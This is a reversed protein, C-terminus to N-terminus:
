RAGRRMSRLRAVQARAEADGPALRVVAEFEALADDLRGADLLALGLNYRAPADDPSRAVAQALYPLGEALRGAECLAAGLNSLAAVYEPWIRVAERLYAIGEAADGRSVLANGLNNLAEPADPRLALARRYRAIAGAAEGRRELNMGIVTEAVWNPGTVEAAHEFLRLESRWFDVQRLTLACLVALLAAAGLGSAVEAGSRRPASPLAWCAVLLLGISPVYTYRDAMAQNGVQVIGLVPVLTGVFWLLGVIAYPYARRARWALATAAALAVAAALLAPLSPPSAPYPYFVALADPWVAKGVYAALSVLANALRRSAPTDHMPRMAGWSSQALFTVVASAASLAFLPLKERVLPWAARPSLAALDIRRLPWADLLLLVFPLTVLMPKAALGLVFLGIVLAYRRRGPARVWGVYALTAALWFFGSLVDKRESVWAVSEVRLPHLAFLAAALASRWTAGTAGSLLWFLLGANACHLLLNTAHHGAPAMGFLSVDLMHSIWTLPHWNAAHGATLAWAVARPTLGGLVNPNRTVYEPDDFGIFPVDLVSRFVVATLAALGFAIAIRTRM